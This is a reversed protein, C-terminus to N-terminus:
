NLYFEELSHFFFSNLKFFNVEITKHLTSNQEAEPMSIPEEAKANESSSSSQSTTPVPITTEQSTPGNPSSRYVIYKEIEQFPVSISDTYLRWHGLYARATWTSLSGEEAM